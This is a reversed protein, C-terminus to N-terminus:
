IIKMEKLEIQSIFKSVKANDEKKHIVIVYQDSDTDIISFDLESKNLWKKYDLFLNDYSITIRDPYNTKSPLKIEKNFNRKIATNLVWNFDDLGTKWDLSVLFLLKNSNLYNIIYNLATGYQWHGDYDKLTKAFDKFMIFDEQNLCLEALNIYNERKKDSLIKAKPKIRNLHDKFSEVPEVKLDDKLKVIFNSHTDKLNSVQSIYKKIVEKKRKRGFFSIRKVKKLENLLIHEDWRRSTSVLLGQNYTKGSTMGIFVPKYNIVDPLLFEQVCDKGNVEKNTHIFTKIVQMNKKIM